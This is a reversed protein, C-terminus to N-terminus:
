KGIASLLNMGNNYFVDEVEEKTLKAAVAAKKFALIEEYLFFTLKEGEFGEVERMHPDDSVNGYLGKPVINVYIGKETIRRMRMRTIPLDSGFLIRKPGVAKLLQEFVWENTNASFDFLMNKTSALVEFADGVDERSYARGVHAIILKVKPYREEIEMMQALNVPDKLRGDRPIHLMAIRGHKNLVELHAPPLFDYIRIEKRPIYAPSFNLYFKAGKYDGSLLADEFRTPTWEPKSLLLGYAKGEQSGDLIYQNVTNIDEAYRPHAFMLPIVVKDPFMLRYTEFLDEVPNQNAVKTTWSVLRSDLSRDSVADNNVYVHTHIDVIKPPLFDRINKQYCEIDVQKVEFLDKM